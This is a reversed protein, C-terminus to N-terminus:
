IIVKEAIIAATTAIIGLIVMPVIGDLILCIVKDGSTDPASCEMHDADRQIAIDPKLFQYMLMGFMFFVVALLIVLM